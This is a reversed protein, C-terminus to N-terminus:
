MEKCFLVYLFTPVKRYEKRILESYLNYRAIPSGLIALDFDIMWKTDKSIATHSKTALIHSEIEELDEPSLSLNQLVKLAKKASDEENKKNWVGYIIDHYFIAFAVLDPKELEKKYIDFYGFLEELHTLNHYTRHSETYHSELENWLIDIYQNENTYSSTLDFFRTRLTM